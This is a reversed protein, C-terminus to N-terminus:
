FGMKFSYQPKWNLGHKKAQKKLLSQHYLFYLVQSKIPLDDAQSQSLSQTKPLYLSFCASMYM